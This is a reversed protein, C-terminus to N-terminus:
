RGAPRRRSFETLWEVGSAVLELEDDEPGVQGIEVCVPAERRIAGGLAALAEKLPVVGSGYPVSVPGAVPDAVVGDTDKLHVMLVRPSAAACADVLDEGLRVVNATDLCIGLTEEEGTMDL